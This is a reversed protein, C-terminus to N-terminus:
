PPSRVVRMAMETTGFLSAMFRQAILFGVPAAQAYDLPHLLQSYSKEIINLALAAEGETLSRNYLFQAVRLLAGFGIICWYFAPSLFFRIRSIRELPCVRVNNVM